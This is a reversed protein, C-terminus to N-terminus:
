SCPRESRGTVHRGIQPRKEVAMIITALAMWLPNM